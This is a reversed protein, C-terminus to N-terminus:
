KEVSDIINRLQSYHEAIRLRVTEEQNMINNKTKKLSNILEEQKSFSSM